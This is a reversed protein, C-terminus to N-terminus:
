GRYVIADNLSGLIRNVHALDNTSFAETEGSASGLCVIYVPKKSRLWVVGTLLFLVSWFLEAGSRTGIAGLGVFVCVLILLFPGLKSPEKTGSKVSTINSMTYTRGPVVFRANTVTINGEQLFVKEM